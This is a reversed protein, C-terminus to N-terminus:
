EEQTAERILRLLDLAAEPSDRYRFYQAEFPLEEGPAVPRAAVLGDLDEVGLVADDGGGGEAVPHRALLDFPPHARPDGVGSM